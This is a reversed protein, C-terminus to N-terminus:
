YRSFASIGGALVSLAAATIMAPIGLKVERATGTQCTYTSSGTFNLGLYSVIASSALVLSVGGLPRAAALISGALGWVTGLAAGKLAFSRFPLAPLLIPFGLSGLVVSGILVSSIASLRSGFGGSFPLASLLALALAAGALPWAHVLELPGLVARDALGFRVTRMAADKKMGSELFAPLDAARVPGYVVRFGSATAVEVASVGPAALQPLVIIRHAVVEKLSLKALREVLEKTGFSGKGAACWVNVGKTDLVVIWADIGSLRKRLEDFSLKYNATVLVASAPTPAGVAYLGPRVRYRGRGIGLRVRWAGAIDAIGLRTGIRPTLRGSSEVFGTVYRENPVTLPSPDVLLSKASVRTFTM